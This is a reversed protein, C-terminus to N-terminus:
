ESPDEEKEEPMPPMDIVTPAHRKAYDQVAHWVMTEADRYGMDKAVQKYVRRIEIRVKIAERIFDSINEGLEAATTRIYRHVAPTTRFNVIASRHRRPDTRPM